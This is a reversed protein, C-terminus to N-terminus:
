ESVPRPADLDGAEVVAVRETVERRDDVEDPRVHVRHLVVLSALQERRRERALEGGAETLGHDQLLEADARVERGVLVGRVVVPLDEVGGQEGAGAAPDGPVVAVVVVQARFIGVAVVDELHMEAEGVPLPPRLLLEADEGVKRSLDALQRLRAPLGDLAVDRDDDGLVEFTLQREGLRGVALVDPVVEELRVDGRAFGVQRDLELALAVANGGGGAEVEGRARLEEGAGAEVSESRERLPARRDVEGVERAARCILAARPQGPEVLDEPDRMAKAVAEDIRDVVLLDDELEDLVEAVDGGARPEGEGDRARVAGARIEGDIRDAGLDHGDVGVPAGREEPVPEPEAGGHEAGVGELM